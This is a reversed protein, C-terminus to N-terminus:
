LKLQSFKKETNEITKLANEISAPSPKSSRRSKNSASQITKLANGFANISPQISHSKNSAYSRRTSSKKRSSSNHAPSVLISSLPKTIGSIAGNFSNAQMSSSHHTSNGLINNGIKSNYLVIISGIIMALSTTIILERESM